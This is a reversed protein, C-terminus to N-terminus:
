GLALDGKARGARASVRLQMLGLMILSFLLLWPVPSGRFNFVDRWSDLLAVGPGGPDMATSGVTGNTVMRSGKEGVTYQMVPAGGPVGPGGVLPSLPSMGSMRSWEDAGAYPVDSPAAVGGSQYLTGTAM